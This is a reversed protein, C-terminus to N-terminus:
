RRSLRRSMPTSRAIYDAVVWRVGHNNFRSHVPREYDLGVSSMLPACQGWVGLGRSAPKPIEEVAPDPHM